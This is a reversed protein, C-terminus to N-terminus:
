DHLSIQSANPQKLKTMYTSLAYKGILTLFYKAIILTFKSYKTKVPQDNM